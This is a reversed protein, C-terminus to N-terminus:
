KENYFRKMREGFVKMSKMMQDKYFPNLKDVRLSLGSKSLYKGKGLYDYDSWESSIKYLTGEEFPLGRGKIQLGKCDLPLGREDYVVEKLVRTKWLFMLSKFM